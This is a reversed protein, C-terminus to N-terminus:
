DSRAFIWDLYAALRVGGQKLRQKATRLHQYSYDYSLRSTEDDSAPEPYITDRIAASEALWVQPDPAWWAITEAPKIARRLWRAYEPYGPSRGEIMASDWVSHLNTARGFWTVRIDNGGRDAGNGVHLPQHLDGVIHVVFALALKKDERSAADNRLVAVYRSLAEVGDGEPPAGVQAYTQGEPVTVYHWPSAQDQWFPDPNSKEDDPLTSLEALDEAELIQAIEARTRGSIREEALQGVIRHGLQGWANAASPIITALAAAALLLHKM